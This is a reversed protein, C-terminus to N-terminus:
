SVPHHALARWPVDSRLYGQSELLFIRRSRLGILCACGIASVAWPNAHEGHATALIDNSLARAPGLFLERILGAAISLPVLDPQLM